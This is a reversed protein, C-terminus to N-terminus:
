SKIAGVMVGKVFYKQMWPYVMIIPIVTFLLNAAKQTEKIITVKASSNLKRSAETSDTLVGLTRQLVLQLPIYNKNSPMFFVADMFGNWRGVAAFLALTAITPLALFFYIKFLITFDGAGDIRASEELSDSISAFSTRMILMSFVSFSGPLVLVLPNDLLGMFQYLLYTPILGGGFYMTIMFFTLFFGRGRLGKRSLPFAAFIVMMVQSITCVATLFVTFVFSKILEANRFVRIWAEPEFEVPWFWVDGSMVARSSSFSIAFINLFPLVFIILAIGLFFSEIALGAMKGKKRKKMMVIHELAKGETKVM